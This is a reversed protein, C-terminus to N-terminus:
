KAWVICSSPEPSPMANVEELSATFDEWPLIQEVASLPDEGANRADPIAQGISVYQRLKQQILKGTKQLHEAQQRKARSFMSDLICEHLEIIEDIITVRAETLVCVMTAYRRAPAYDALDWSSIKRGERALKLLRNQYVTRDM